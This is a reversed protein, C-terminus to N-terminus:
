FILSNERVNTKVVIGVLYIFFIAIIFTKNITNYTYSTSFIFCGGGGEEQQLPVTTQVPQPESNKINLEVAYDSNSEFAPTKLSYGSNIDFYEIEIDSNEIQNKSDYYRFEIYNGEVFGNGEGDDQSNIIIQPSTKSIQDVITSAGVCKGNDFIGIEDGSNPDIGSIGVVWINMRNYPNGTWVPIYKRTGSSVESSKIMYNNAITNVVRKKNSYQITYNNDTLVKTMYGEGPYLEGINNVWNGFLNLMTDGQENSVKVISNSNIQTKFFSMVNQPTTIPYGVINWGKTLKSVSPIEFQNGIIELTTDKEVKIKYGKTNDFDSMTSKWNGFYSLITNGGEDIVKILDGTKILPAVLDLMNTNKPVIYSSIINWGKSLHISQKIDKQATLKAAYDSNAEFVVSELQNDSKIDYFSVLVSSYEVKNISDWVRFSIENGEIFGNSIGDDKSISIVLPKDVSINDKVTGVGVCKNNDFIGIEDNISLDYDEIKAEILWLNMREYPNGTWVPKFHTDIDDSSKDADIMLNNIYVNENDAFIVHLSNDKVILSPKRSSYGPNTIPTLDAKSYIEKWSDNSKMLVILKSDTQYVVVPQNDGSFNISAMEYVDREVAITEFIWEEKKVGLKLEENQNFLINLENNSSFIMDCNEIINDTIITEENWGNDNWYHKISNNGNSQKHVGTIHFINNNVEADLYAVYTNASTISSSIWINDSLNFYKLYYGAHAFSTVHAENNNDFRVRIWAGWNANQFITTDLSITSGDFLKYPARFGWNTGTPAQYVIALKNDNTVVLDCHEPPAAVSESEIDAIFGNESYLKLKSFNSNPDPYGPFNNKPATGIIFVIEGNFVVANSIGTLLPDTFVTQEESSNNEKARQHITFVIENGNESIVTVNGTRFEEENEEYNVTIEGNNNGTTDGIINIWTNSTSVNWSLSESGTYLIQFKTQGSLYSVSMSTPLIELFSDDSDLKKGYGKLDIYLGEFGEIIIQATKEGDSTPKFVVEINTSINKDLLFEKDGIIEFQDKNNGDLSINGTATGGGINKITFSFKSSVSNIDHEGFNLKKESLEIQPENSDDKSDDGISDDKSDDDNSDDKSDDGIADDKSDDDNSDDKSDDDNSNDKSDDGISDDKSDDDNFDDKSDDDNSDDGISNDKSDDDISDDKSDDGISDDKKGIGSIPTSVSNCSNFGKVRIIATKKGTSKPKFVIDVNASQNKYISFSSTKIEFQDIDNGDLSINGTATGGGINKLTFSFTSSTSAVEIEDFNHTEPSLEIKPTEIGTGSINASLSNCLNYGKVKLTAIKKGVSTPRFVVDIKQCQNKYISFNNTKIEFQDKDNGDLFINGTATGGGINKLTFSFFSSTSGVNIEDFNHTEPSLEIKPTEKGTGSIDASVTNCSNYGEISLITRKNGASTPKFMIEIIENQNANLSFDGNGKIVVFQNYDSGKLFVKGKATDGGINKLIFEFSKSKDGVEIEKFDYKTSSIEIKPPNPLVNIYVTKSDKIKGDKKKVYTVATITKNGSSEFIRDDEWRNEGNKRMPNWKIDYQIEVTEVKVKESTIVTATAKHGVKPTELFSINEINSSVNINKNESDIADNSTQNYTKIIITKNGQSEFQRTHTWITGSNNMKNMDNSNGNTSYWIKVIKAEESTIVKTTIEQGVKPAQDSFSVDSIKPFLEKPSVNIYKTLYDVQKNSVNFTRMNITKSGASEFKRYHTWSTGSGNMTFWNGSSSYRIEVKTANESTIVTTKIEQGVSPTTDSFFVDTIKPFLEKQAVNLYKTQYDIQNNSNDFTRINITKSGASEFKRYHTWSTGSGNMSFWNGSSSYRIEVKTANESTIVTTKIEQGVSPTTDSFSIDKIKPNQKKYDIIIPDNIIFALKRGDPHKMAIVIKINMKETIKVDLYGGSKGKAITIKNILYSSSTKNKYIALIADVLITKGSTTKVTIRIQGNNLNQGYGYFTGSDKTNSEDEIILQDSYLKENENIVECDAFSLSPFLFMLLIIVIIKISLQRM